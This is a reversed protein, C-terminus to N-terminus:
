GHDIIDLIAHYQSETLPLKAMANIAQMCDDSPVGKASAAIAMQSARHTPRPAPPPPPPVNNTERISTPTSIIAGDSINKVTTDIDAIWFRKWSFFVM